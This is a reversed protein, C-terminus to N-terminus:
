IVIAYVWYSDAHVSDKFIYHKFAITGSQLSTNEIVTNDEALGHQIAEYVQPFIDKLSKLVLQSSPFFGAPIKGSWTDTIVKEKNLKYHLVPFEKLLKLTIRDRDLLSLEATKLKTIDKTIIFMGTTRNHENKFPIRSTSVWATDGNNFVLKEEMDMLPRGSDILAKEERMAKEAHERSFFDYDTKGIVEDPTMNLRQAKASNIRLIRSETDKYTIRDPLVEMLVGFMSKELELSVQMRKMEVTQRELAEQTAQMEEMNQRMEEEQARLQESQQQSEDLMSKTIAANRANVIASAIIEGVQLVFDIEHKEYEHFSALEIVGEIADNLKLPVILLSTPNGTGLGSSISVYNKPVHTLYIPQGELFCQGLLGHGIDVRKTLHKKRDYAYCAILELHIDEKNNRNVTFLGGQNSQTHKVLQSILTDSLRKQDEEKRILDAFMALGATAWNRKKDADTISRLKERMQVLSNGLTDQDSAPKFDFDFNGEGIRQAFTSSHKLNESLRNASRVIGSFEDRTPPINISTNGQVLNELIVSPNKLSRVFSRIIWYTGGGLILFMTMLCAIMGRFVSNHRTILSAVTRAVQDKESVANPSVLTNNSDVTSSISNISESKISAYETLTKLVRIEKDSKVLQNLFYGFCVSLFIFIFFAFFLVKSKISKFSM